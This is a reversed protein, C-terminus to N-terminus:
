NVNGTMSDTSEGSRIWCQFLNCLMGNWQRRLIDMLVSARLLKPVFDFILDIDQMELCALIVRIAAMNKTNTVSQRAECRDDIGGQTFYAWYGHPTCYGHHVGAACM